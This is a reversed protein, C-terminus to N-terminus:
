NRREGDGSSRNSISYNSHTSVPWTALRGSISCSDAGGSFRTWGCLHRGRPAKEPLNEPPSQISESRFCRKSTALRRHINQFYVCCFTCITNAPSPGQAQRQSTRHLISEATRRRRLHRQNRVTEVRESDRRRLWSGFSHRRGALLM